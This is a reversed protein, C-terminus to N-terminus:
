FLMQVLRILVQALTAGYADLLVDQPTGTRSPIFTQHWEDIGAISTAFAVALLAWALSWRRTSDRRLARFNLAGLIGYEVLHASKRVYLHFLSFDRPVFNHGLINALLDHLWFGTHQSSFLDASAWLIACSWLIAPAQYRLFRSLSPSVPGRM